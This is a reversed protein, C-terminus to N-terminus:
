LKELFAYLDPEQPQWLYRKNSVNLKQKSLWLQRIKHYNFNKFTISIGYDGELYRWASDSDILYPIQYANYEYYKTPFKGENSTNQSYALIALHSNILHNYITSYPLPENSVILTIAKDNDILRLLKLYFDRNPCHGVLKLELDKNAAKLNKFLMIAKDAGSIESINGTFILKTSSESTSKIVFKDSIGEIAKNELIVSKSTTFTLQTAYVQEALIYGSIFPKSIYEIARLAFAAIYKFFRSYQNQHILNLYYNEQIDYVIKGGFLIRYAIMVPLLEPHNGIWIDPRLQVVKKLIRFGVVLRNLLPSQNRKLPHFIINESNEINKSGFGIINVEYKNTKSMSKALKLYHRQDDIPKLHSTIAVKKMSYFIYL